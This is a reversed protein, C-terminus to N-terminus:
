EAPLISAKVPSKFQCLTKAKRLIRHHFIASSHNTGDLTLPRQDGVAPTIGPENSTRTKKTVSEEGTIVYVDIDGSRRIIEDVVSGFIRERWRAKAPKGVVIKSVNRERAFNLIEDAVDDGTLQVTEAGLREALRLTSQVSEISAPPLTTSTEVWGVIWEAHLSTAMRRAARVLRASLPHPGICVLIREATPWTGPVEHDRRYNQMQADVHEATRRLALERLATLNGERFFNSLAREASHPVYVKGERLRKQLELPSLDILEIEDARELVHD